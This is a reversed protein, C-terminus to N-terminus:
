FEDIDDDDLWTPAAAEEEGLQDDSTKRQQLVSDLDDPADDEDPAFRDEKETLQELDNAHTAYAPHHFAPLRLSELHTM